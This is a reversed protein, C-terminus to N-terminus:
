LGKGCSCSYGERQYMTCSKSHPRKKLDCFREAELEVDTMLLWERAQYSYGQATIWANQVKSVVNSVEDFVVLQLPCHQAKAHVYGEQFVEAVQLKNFRVRPIDISVTDDSEVINFGEAIGVVNDGVLVQITHKAKVCTCAYAYPNGGGSAAQTMACQPDHQKEPDSHIPLKTENLLSDLAEMIPEPLEEYASVIDIFDQMRKMKVYQQKVMIRRCREATHQTTSYNARGKPDQECPVTQKSALETECYECKIM